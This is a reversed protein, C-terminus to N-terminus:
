KPAGVYREKLISLVEEYMVLSEQDSREFRSDTKKLTAQLMAQLDPDISYIAAFVRATMSGPGLFRPSPPVGGFGDFGGGGKPKAKPIAKEAAIAVKAEVFTVQFVDLLTPLAAKADPGIKGLASVLRMRTDVDKDKLSEILLPVAARAKPGLHGLVAIAGQRGNTSGKEKLLDIMKPVVEEFGGLASQARVRVQNSEDEKMASILVPILDKKKPALMGLANIAEERYKPDTDKYQELWRTATRGQYLPGDDSRVPTRGALADKLDRIDRQAAELEARLKAIEAQLQRTDPSKAGKQARLPDTSVCVLTASALLVLTARSM